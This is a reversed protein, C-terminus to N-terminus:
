YQKTKLHEAYQAEKINIMISRLANRESKDEITPLAARMAALMLNAQRETFSPISLMQM